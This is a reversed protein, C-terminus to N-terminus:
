GIKNLLLKVIDYFVFYEIGAKIVLLGLRLLYSHALNIELLEFMKYYLFQFLACGVMGLGAIGLIVLMSYGLMYYLPMIYVGVCGLCILNLCYLFKTLRSYFASREFSNIYSSLKDYFYKLIAIWAVLAIAYPLMRILNLLTKIVSEGIVIAIVLVVLIFGTSIPFIIFWM